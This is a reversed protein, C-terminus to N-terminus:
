KIGLEEKIQTLKEESIHIFSPYLKALKLSNMFRTQKEESDYFYSKIFEIIWNDEDDQNECIYPCQKVALKVLDISRKKGMEFVGGYNDGRDGRLGKVFKILEPKLGDYYQEVDKLTTEEIDGEKGINFISVNKGVVQYLDKDWTIIGIKDEHKESFRKKFKDVFFAIMDDAEMNVPSPAIRFGQKAMYLSFRYSLNQERPKQEQRNKYNYYWKRRPNNEHIPIPEYIMLCRSPKVSLADVLTRLKVSCYLMCSMEWKKNREKIRAWAKTYRIVFSSADILLIM